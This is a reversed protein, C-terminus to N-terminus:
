AKNFWSPLLPSLVPAEHGSAKRPPLLSFSDSTLSSQSIKFVLSPVITMSIFASTASQAFPRTASFALLGSPHM